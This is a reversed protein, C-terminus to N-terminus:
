LVFPILVNYPTANIADSFSHKRALAGSVNINYINGWANPFEENPAPAIGLAQSRNAVAPYYHLAYDVPNYLNLVLSPLYGGYEYEGGRGFAGLDCAGAVLILSIKGKQEAPTSGGQGSVAFGADGSRDTGDLIRTEENSKERFMSNWGIQLVTKTM